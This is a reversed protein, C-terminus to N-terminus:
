RANDIILKVNYVWNKGKNLGFQKYLDSTFGILGYVTNILTSNAIPDADYCHGSISFIISALFIYKIAMNVLLNNM